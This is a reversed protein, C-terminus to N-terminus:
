KNYKRLIKIIADFLEEEMKSIQVFNYNDDSNQSEEDSAVESDSIFEYEDSSRCLDKNSSM